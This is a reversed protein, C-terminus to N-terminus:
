CGVHINIWCDLHKTKPNYATAGADLFIKMTSLRRLKTFAGKSNYIAVMEELFTQYVPKSSSPIEETEITMSEM